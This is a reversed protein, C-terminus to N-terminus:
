STAGPVATAAGPAPASWAYVIDPGSGIAAATATKPRLDEWSESTVVVEVGTKETFKKSNELFLTEDGQVFKSPRLVRLSAGDEIPFSPPAVDKVAIQARLSGSALMTTGALAGAGLQIANRRTFLAM